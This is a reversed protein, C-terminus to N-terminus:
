CTQHKVIRAENIHSKQNVFAFLVSYFLPTIEWSILYTNLPIHLCTWVLSVGCSVPQFDAFHNIQLPYLNLINIKKCNIVTQIKKLMTGTVTINWVNVCGGLSLWKWHYGSYTFEVWLVRQRLLKSLDDSYVTRNFHHCCISSSLCSGTWKLYYLYTENLVNKKWKLRGNWGYEYERMLLQFLGCSPAQLGHQCDVIKVKWDTGTTPLWPFSDSYWAVMKNKVEIIACNESQYCIIPIFVESTSFRQEPTPPLPLISTSLTSLSVSSHLSASIQCLGSCKLKSNFTIGLFGM